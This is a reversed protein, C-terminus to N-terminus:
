RGSVVTIRDDISKVGKVKKATEVAKVKEAESKVDGSLMVVGDFTKVGLRSGNLGTPELQFTKELAKEVNATIVSDPGRHAAQVTTFSLALLSVLVLSILIIRRTM